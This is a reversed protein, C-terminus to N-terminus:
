AAEDASLQSLIRIAAERGHVFSVNGGGSEYGASLAFLAVAATIM